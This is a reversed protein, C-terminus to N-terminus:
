KPGYLLVTYDGYHEANYKFCELHLLQFSISTQIPSKEAIFAQVRIYWECLALSDYVYCIAWKGEGGSEELDDHQRELIM